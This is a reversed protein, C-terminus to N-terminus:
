SRPRHSTGEGSTIFVATAPGKFIDATHWVGPENIAYQGPLLTVEGTGGDQYEQILRIEGATCLVVEHGKPHMEWSDWSESFTFMSVLRGEAGDDAHRATYGDYWAMDGTFEPEVKAKGSRGLHVPRTQLRLPDPM